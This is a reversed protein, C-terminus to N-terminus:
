PGAPRCPLVLSPCVRLPIRWTNQGGPGIYVLKEHEKELNGSHNNPDATQQSIVTNTRSQNQFFPAFATELGSFSTANFYCDPGFSFTKCASHNPFVQVIDFYKQAPCISNRFWKKTRLCSETSTLIKQLNQPFRLLLLSRFLWWVQLFMPPSVKVFRHILPKSIFYSWVHCGTNTILPDLPASM